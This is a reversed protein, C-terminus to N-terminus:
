GPTVEYGLAIRRNELAPLEARARDVAGADIDAVLVGEGRPGLAAVVNGLPDVVASLGATASGREGGGVTASAVLWSVNELARARTLLSWHAEKGPGSAWAAALLFAQAGQDVLHRFVEPFRVDYCNALGFRIREPGNEGECVVDIVPPLEDGAQTHETESAAFAKYLHLKRYRALESGDPGYAIITNFPLEDPASGTSPAPEFGPAIVTIGHEVALEAALSAFPEWWDRALETLREPTVSSLLVLTQEPFVVVRAGLAAAEAARARMKALNEAPDLEPTLQVAAVRM